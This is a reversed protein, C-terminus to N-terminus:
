YIEIYDSVISPQDYDGRVTADQIELTTPLDGVISFTIKGLIGSGSFGDSAGMVAGGAKLLDGDVAPLPIQGPIFSGPGLGQFKLVDPDFSIDIGWGSIPESENILIEVVVTQGDNSVVLAQISNPGIGGMPPGNEGTHDYEGENHYEDGHHNEEEWQEWYDQREQNLQEWERDIEQFRQQQEEDLRQWANPDQGGPGNQMENRKQNFEKDIAIRKEEISIEKEMWQKEVEYMGQDFNEGENQRREDMDREFDQRRNGLDDQQRNIWYDQREQNLQEWERDIAIRDRELAIERQLFQKEVEYEAQDFNEGENQRREDMDREFDELRQSLNAEHDNHHQGISLNPIVLITAMSLLFFTQLIKM